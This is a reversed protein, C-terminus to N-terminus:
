AARGLRSLAADVVGPFRMCALLAVLITAVLLEADPVRPLLLAAMGLGLAGVVAGEPERGGLLPIALVAVAYAPSFATPQPVGQALLALVTGAAGALAGSLAFSSIWTSRVDVGSRAALEPASGVARARRGIPSGHLNAVTRWAVAAVALAALYLARDGGLDVGVIVPRAFAALRVSPLALGWVVLVGIITVIPVLAHPRRLAPLVLLAGVAAGACAALVLALPLSQGRGLVATTSVAGVALAAPVHLALVRLWGVTVTLAAGILVLALIEVGRRHWAPSDLLFPWVIALALVVARGRERVRRLPLLDSRRM